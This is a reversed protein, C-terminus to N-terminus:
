PGFKVGMCVVPLIVTKHIKIKLTQSIKEKGKRGSRSQPGGLRRDSTYPPEKGPLLVVPAHLQGSV